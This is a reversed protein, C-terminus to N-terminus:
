CCQGDGSTLVVPGADDSHRLTRICYIDSQRVIQIGTCTMPRNHTRGRMQIDSHRFRQIDFHRFTQNYSHRFSQIDSHRVTQADSHIKSLMPSPLHLVAGSAQVVPWCYQGAGCAFLVPWCWQGVISNYQGAVSALLVPWCYNGAGSALLV